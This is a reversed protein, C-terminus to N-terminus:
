WLTSKESIRGAVTLASLVTDDRASAFSLVPFDPMSPCHRMSQSEYIKGEEWGGAEGGQEAGSDDNEAYDDNAAVREGAHTTDDQWGQEGGGGEGGGGGGEEEGRREVNCSARAGASLASTSFSSLLLSTTSLNSDNHKSTQSTHINSKRAPAHSALIPPPPSVNSDGTSQLLLPLVLAELSAELPAPPEPPAAALHHPRTYSTYPAASPPPRRHHAKLKEQEYLTHQQISEHQKNILVHREELKDHSKFAPQEKLTHRENLTHQENRTHQEQPIHKETLLTPQRKLKDQEQEFYLAMQRRAEERQQLAVNALLHARTREAREKEQQAAAHRARAAAIQNSESQRQLENDERVSERERERERERDRIGVSGSKEDSGIGVMTRVHADTRTGHTLHTGHTWPTHHTSLADHTPHTLQTSPTHHIVNALHSPHTHASSSNTHHIPPPHNTMQTHNRLSIDVSSNDLAPVRQLRWSTLTNWDGGAGGQDDRAAIHCAGGDGERDGERRGETVLVDTGRRHQMPTRAHEIATEDLYLASTEGVYGGGAGESARSDGAGHSTRAGDGQMAAASRLFDLHVLLRREELAKM